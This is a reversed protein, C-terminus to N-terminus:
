NETIDDAGSHMSVTETLKLLNSWYIKFCSRNGFSSLTESAHCSTAYRGVRAGAELLCEVLKAAIASRCASVNHLATRQDRDAAM